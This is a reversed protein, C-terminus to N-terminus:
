IGAGVFGNGPASCDTGANNGTVCVDLDGSGPVACEGGGARGSNLRLARPPEYRVRDDLPGNGM